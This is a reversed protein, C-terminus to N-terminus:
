SNSSGGEWDSRLISMLIADHFGSRRKIAHRFRGEVVFGLKQYASIAGGNFDFASLGVRNLGLSGFAYALLLEIAETGYGKHRDDPHGVIVSLEASENAGSINMLSIVGIPDDAGRVHIAFSDDTPSLERDEFLREVASRSLPSPTWSTLHWIEPDGYWKAYLRYNARDHRRLEVSEGELGNTTQDLRVAPIYRSPGRHAVFFGTEGRDTTADGLFGPIFSPRAPRHLAADIPNEDDGPDHTSYLASYLVVKAPHPAPIKAYENPLFPIM